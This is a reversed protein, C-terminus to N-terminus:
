RKEKEQDALFKEVILRALKSRGIKADKALADLKRVDVGSLRFNIQAAKLVEPVVLGLEKLKDQKRTAM